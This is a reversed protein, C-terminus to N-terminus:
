SQGARSLRNSSHNRGVSVAVHAHGFLRILGRNDRKGAKGLCPTRHAAGRNAQYDANQHQAAQEPGLHYGGDLGPIIGGGVVM